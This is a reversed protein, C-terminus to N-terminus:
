IAATHEGEKNKLCIVLPHNANLVLTEGMGGFMGM